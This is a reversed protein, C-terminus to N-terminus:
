AILIHIGEMLLLSGLWKVSLNMSMYLGDKENIQGEQPNHGVNFIARTLRSKM